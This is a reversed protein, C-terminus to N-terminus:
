RRQLPQSSTMYKQIILFIGLSILVDGISIVKYLLPIVDSLLMFFTEDRILTHTVIRDEAILSFEQILGAKELAWGSVPMRGGNLTMPISNMMIGASVLNFPWFSRNFFLTTLLLLNSALQIYVFNDFLFGNGRTILYISVYSLLFGAPIFGWMRIALDSINGIKGGRLKGYAIALLLTEIIM